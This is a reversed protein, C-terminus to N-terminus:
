RVKSYEHFQINLFGTLGGIGEAMKLLGYYRYKFNFLLFLLFVFGFLIYILSIFFKKIIKGYSRELIMMYIYSNAGNYSRQLLWKLTARKEPITEYVVAKAASYIAGNEKLVSIGFYSDESGTTNFRLDFQLQHEKLFKSCMILNGTIIFDLKKRNDNQPRYFWHSIAEPVKKEFDPLVPGMAMDADNSVVSYILENLWNKTVYEDDDVFVIYDPNLKFARQIIENRVNSLGRIAYNHYNFRFNTPCRNGLKLSTTEATRDKDNDVILIDVDSIFEKNINSAYISKVLKELMAPRKYTPIGIVLHYM